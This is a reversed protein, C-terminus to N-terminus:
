WDKPLAPISQRLIQQISTKEPAPLYAFEPDVVEVALAKKLRQNIRSKLVSPLGKFLDSQIMYSCRNELLRTKLNLKKLPGGSAQFDKAFDAHIGGAPLAAEDAFLLYKVLIDAQKELLREFAPSNEGGLFQATRVRYGAEVARNFFGVQHEHLLHALIDSTSAPYRNLDFKAGHPNPFKQLAGGILRGTMNGWHNTFSESGTVHWGGFRESLPTQHGAPRSRFSELSGGSPGPIVSKIVLGPVYATEEGAHCNMCRDSREFQIPGAAKPIDFIYFIAGLEPDTGIIELRGGPIYGVYIEDNFYVARPNSPSIFRLQLSTTSFVLMQSSAPVDLIRLFSRVFAIESSRDLRSDTELSKMIRSFRDKPERAKYHHPAENINQYRTDDDLTSGVSSVVVGIALFYKALAAIMEIQKALM